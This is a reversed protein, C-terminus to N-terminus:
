LGAARLVSALDPVIEAGEVPASRELRESALLLCRVGDAGAAAADAPTDGVLIAREPPWPSGDGARARALPVLDTRLESDSGYAGADIDVLGSLGMREIKAAAIPALNGTVLAVHHGNANLAALADAAGERVQWRGSARDAEAAFAAAAAAEWQPLRADVEDDPVGAAGLVDRIIRRDTKGVPDIQMVADDPIEVAYVSRAAAVMARGHAYADDTLLTGDLDFLVLLPLM